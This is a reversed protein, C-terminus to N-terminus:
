KWFICMRGNISDYRFKLDRVDIKKTKQKIENIERGSESM